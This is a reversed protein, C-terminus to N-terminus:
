HYYRILLESFFRELLCNFYLLSLNRIQFIICSSFVIKRSFVLSLHINDNSSYQAAAAAVASGLSSPANSHSSHRSYDDYDHKSHSEYASFSKPVKSKSSSSSSTQHHQHHRDKNDSSKKSSSSTGVDRQREKLRTTTLVPNLNQYSKIYKSM